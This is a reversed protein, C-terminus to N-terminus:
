HRTKKQKLIRVANLEQTENSDWDMATRWDKRINWSESVKILEPWNSQLYFTEWHPMDPIKKHNFNCVKLSNVVSTIHGKGDYLFYTASISRVVQILKKICKTLTTDTPDAVM